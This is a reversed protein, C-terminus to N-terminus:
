VPHTVVIDDVSVTVAAPGPGAEVELVPSSGCYVGFRM